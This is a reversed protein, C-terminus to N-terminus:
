RKQGDENQPGDKPFAESEPVAGPAAIIPPEHYKKEHVRDPDELDDIEEAYQLEFGGFKKRLLRLLDQFLFLLAFSSTGLPFFSIPIKSPFDYGGCLPSFEDM